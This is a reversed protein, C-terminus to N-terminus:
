IWINSYIAVTQKYNLRSYTLIVHSPQYHIYYRYSPCQNPLTSLTLFEDTNHLNICLKWYVAGVNIIKAFLDSTPWPSLSFYKKISLSCELGPRFYMSLSTYHFKCNQQTSHKQKNPYICSKELEKLIYKLLLWSWELLTKKPKKLSIDTKIISKM